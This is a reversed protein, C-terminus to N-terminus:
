ENEPENVQSSSQVSASSEELKNAYHKINRDLIEKEKSDPDIKLEEPRFLKGDAPTQLGNERKFALAKDIQGETKSPDFQVADGIISKKMGNYIPALGKSLDEWRHKPIDSQYPTSLVPNAASIVPDYRIRRSRGDPTTTEFSVWEKEPTNIISSDPRPATPIVLEASKNTAFDIAKNIKTKESGPSTDESKPSSKDIGLNSPGAIPNSESKNTSSALHNTDHRNTPEEQVPTDFNTSTTNNDENEEETNNKSNSSCSSGCILDFFSFGMFIKNNSDDYIWKHYITSKFVESLGFFEYVKPTIIYYFFIILIILNFVINGGKYYHDYASINMTSNWSEGKFLFLVLFILLFFTFIIILSIILFLWNPEPGRPDGNSNSVKIKAGINEFFKFKLVAECGLTFKQLYIKFILLPSYWICNFYLTSFSYFSSGRSAFGALLIRNISWIKFSAIYGSIM